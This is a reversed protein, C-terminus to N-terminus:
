RSRKEDHGSRASRRELVELVDRWADGRARLGVLLHYVVDAAEEAVRGSDEGSLARGLEEAEELIKAGIAAPGKEYLTKTYSEGADGAKRAELTAELRGLLTQAAQPMAHLAAQGDLTRFFCSPEGTHCSPGQPEGEYLLCDADCDVRIQKVLIRHGSTAGKEWLEQRSRSFFTAHGTQLTAQVAEANAYAVMRIEGTLRDQVVAPVLGTEDVKLM